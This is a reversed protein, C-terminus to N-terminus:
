TSQLGFSALLNIVKTIILINNNPDIPIYKESVNGTPAKISECTPRINCIIVDIIKLTIQKPPIKM